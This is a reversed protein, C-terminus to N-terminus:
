KVSVEVGGSFMTSHLELHDISADAPIDFYITGTLKNGPNIDSIWIDNGESGYLTATSDETFERGDTDFAKQESSFFSGPEDGINEVTLDVACYQGQATTSLYEDGVSAIGCEVSNVVFTLGEDTAVDGIGLAEAETTTESETTESSGTTSGNDNKGSNSATVIIVLLVFIIPFIFRKKKYWPRLAKAEAKAAAAKAKALKHDEGSPPPYDYKVDERETPIWLILIDSM